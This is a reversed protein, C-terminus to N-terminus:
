VPTEAVACWTTLKPAHVLGGRVCRVVARVMNVPVLVLVLVVCAVLRLDEVQVRFHKGFM